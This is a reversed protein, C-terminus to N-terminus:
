NARRSLPAALTGGMGIGTGGELRTPMKAVITNSASLIPTVNVPSSQNPNHWAAAAPRDSKEMASLPFNSTKGHLGITLM